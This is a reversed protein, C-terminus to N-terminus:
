RSAIQVGTVLPFDQLVFPSTAWSDRGGATTARSRTTPACAARAARGDRGGRGRGDGRALAADAAFGPASVGVVVPVRDARDLVQRVVALSEEATLKPAEGMM